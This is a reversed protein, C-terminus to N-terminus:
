ENTDKSKVRTWPFLTREWTENQVLFTRRLFALQCVVRVTAENWGINKRM